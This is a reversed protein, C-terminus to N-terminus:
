LLAVTNTLVTAVARRPTTTTGGSAMDLGFSEDSRKDGRAYRVNARRMATVANCM